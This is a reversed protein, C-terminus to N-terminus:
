WMKEHGHGDSGYEEAFPAPLIVSVADTELIHINASPLHVAKRDVDICWVEPGRM